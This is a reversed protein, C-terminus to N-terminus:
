FDQEQLSYRFTHQLKEHEYKKHTKLDNMNSAIHGCLSCSYRNGRHNIEQHTMLSTQTLALYDCINCQHRIGEHKYQRHIELYKPM